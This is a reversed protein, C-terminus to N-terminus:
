KRTQPLDETLRTPIAICTHTKVVGDILQFDSIIKKLDIISPFKAYAIVDFQGTVAHAMKVGSIKLSEEAVKWLSGPKTNILIYADM